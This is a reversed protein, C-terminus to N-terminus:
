ADGWGLGNEAGGADEECHDSYTGEEETILHLECVTLVRHGVFQIVDFDSQETGFDTSGELPSHFSPPQFLETLGHDIRYILQHHSNFPSAGTGTEVRGTLRARSRLVTASICLFAM